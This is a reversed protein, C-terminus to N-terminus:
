AEGVVSTWPAVLTAFDSPDITERLVLALAADRIAARASEWRRFTAVDDTRSQLIDGAANWVTEWTEEWLAPHARAAVYARQWAEPQAAAHTELWQLSLADLQSATLGRVAELLDGVNM